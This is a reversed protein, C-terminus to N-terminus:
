VVPTTCEGAAGRSAAYRTKKSTGNGHRPTLCERGARAFANGVMGGAASRFSASRPRHDALAQQKTHIYSLQLYGRWGGGVPLPSCGWLFFNEPSGLPTSFFTGGKFAVM